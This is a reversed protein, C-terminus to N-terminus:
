EKEMQKYPVRSSPIVESAPKVHTDQDDFFIHANFSYIEREQM